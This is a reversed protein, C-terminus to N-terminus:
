PLHIAQNCHLCSYSYEAPWPGYVGLPGGCSQLGLETDKFLTRSPSYVGTNDKDGLIGELRRMEMKEPGKLSSPQGMCFCPVDFLSLM